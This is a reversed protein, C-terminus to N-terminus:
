FGPLTTQLVTSQDNQTETSHRGLQALMEQQTNPLEERALESQIAAEFVESIGDDFYELLLERYTKGSVFLGGHGYKRRLLNIEEAITLERATFMIKPGLTFKQGKYIVTKGEYSYPKPAPGNYEETPILPYCTAYYETSCCNTFLQGEHVFTKIKPFTDACDAGNIDGEDYGWIGMALRAPEVIIEQPWERSDTFLQGAPLVSISRPATATDNTM